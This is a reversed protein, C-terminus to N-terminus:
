IFIILLYQKNLFNHDLICSIVVFYWKFSTELIVTPSVSNKGEAVNLYKELLRYMFCNLNYLYMYLLNIRIKINLKLPDFFQKRQSKM